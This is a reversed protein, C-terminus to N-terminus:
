WIMGASTLLIALASLWLLARLLARRRAERVDIARQVQELVAFDLPQMAGLHPDSVFGTRM